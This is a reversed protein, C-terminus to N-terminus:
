SQTDDDVLLRGSTVNFKDVSTSIGPIYRTPAKSFKSSTMSKHLDSAQSQHISIPGHSGMASIRPDIGHHLANSKVEQMKQKDFFAHGHSKQEFEKLINVFEKYFTTQRKRRNMKVRAAQQKREQVYKRTLNKLVETENPTFGGGIGSLKQMKDVDCSLILNAMKMQMQEDWLEEDQINYQMDENMLDIGDIVNQERREILRQQKKNVFREFHQPSIHVYRPERDYFIDNYIKVKRQM